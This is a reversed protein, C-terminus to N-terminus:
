SEDVVGSASASAMRVCTLVAGSASAKELRRFRKGERYSFKALQVSDGLTEIEFQLGVATPRVLNIEAV